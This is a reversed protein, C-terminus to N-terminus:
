PWTQSNHLAVWTHNPAKTRNNCDGRYNDTEQYQVAQSHLAATMCSDPRRAETEELKLENTRWTQAQTPHNITRTIKVLLITKCEKHIVGAGCSRGNFWWGNLGVAALRCWCLETQATFGGNNDKLIPAPGVEEQPYAQSTVVLKVLKVRWKITDTPIGCFLHRAFCLHIGCSPRREGM